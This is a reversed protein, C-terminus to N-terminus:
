RTTRETQRCPTCRLDGGGYRGAPQTPRNPCMADPRARPGSSRGIVDEVLERGRQNIEAQDEPARDAPRTRWDRIARAQGLSTVNDTM